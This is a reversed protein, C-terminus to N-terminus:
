SDTPGSTYTTPSSEPKCVYPAHPCIVPRMSNVPMLERAQAPASSCPQTVPASFIVLTSSNRSPAESPDALMVPGGRAATGDVLELAGAPPARAETIPRGVVICDAGAAVAAAPTTTRRQDGADSGAPRIGPVIIALESGCAERIAAIERPSTVVARLGCSQAL